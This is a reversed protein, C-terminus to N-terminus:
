GNLKLPWLRPMRAGSTNLRMPAGLVGRSLRALLEAASPRLGTEVAMARMLGIDAAPFAGPERMGRLAIYQATWEGVGPLAKLAAVAAELGRGLGLLEPDAAVAAAVGSVARARAGPM